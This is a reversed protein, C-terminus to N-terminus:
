LCFPRAPNGTLGNKNGYKCVPIQDPDDGANLAMGFYPSPDLTNKIKLESLFDAWEDSLVISFYLHVGVPNNPDGSYNGQYGLITGARVAWDPHASPNRIWDMVRVSHGTAPRVMRYLFYGFGLMVGAAIIRLLPSRRSMGLM